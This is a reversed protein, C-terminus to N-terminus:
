RPAQAPADPNAPGSNTPTAPNAPPVVPTTPTAPATQVNGEQVVSREAPSTDLTFSTLVCLLIFLGGLVWTAKELVDPAQRAGLIQTTGTSAIGALGGGKGSQLLVVGVLLLALLAILVVLFGFLM